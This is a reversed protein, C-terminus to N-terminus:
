APEPPLHFIEDLGSYRLLERVHRNIRTVRLSGGQAALRKQTKLLVGLGISSIYELRDLDLDRPGTVGDLFRELKGAQVADLRGSLVITGDEAERIEIM